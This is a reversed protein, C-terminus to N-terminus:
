SQDGRSADNMSVGSGHPARWGLIAQLEGLHHIEFTPRPEASVSKGARNVWAVPIGMGHAGAVDSTRSDGVHLVENRALRLEALAADFIEPRPKYSRVDDSTVIHDVRLGHLGIAQELDARDINSVICVPIHREVLYEMFPSADPFIPPSIWHNFQSQLLADPDLDAGVHNLTEVLSQRAADRQSLFDPGYSRTFLTSFTTWWVQAIERSSTPKRANLRITECIVPIIDDDEHVLTGYFDLLIGQYPRM